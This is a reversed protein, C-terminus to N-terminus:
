QINQLMPRFAAKHTLQMLIIITTHYYSHGNVDYTKVDITGMIVIFNDFFFSNRKSGVGSVFMVILCRRKNEGVKEGRERRRELSM